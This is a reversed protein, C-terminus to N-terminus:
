PSDGLPRYEEDHRSFVNDARMIKDGGASELRGEVIVEEGEGFLPPLIGAYRVELFVPPAADEAIDTVTFIHTEGDRRLSDGVIRGGLRFRAGDSVGAAALVESPSYFFVLNRSLALFLLLVGVGLIAATWLGGVLRPTTM